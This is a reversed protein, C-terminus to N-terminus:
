LPTIGISHSTWVNESYFSFVLQNYFADYQHGKEASSFGHEDLTPVMNEIFHNKLAHEFKHIEHM